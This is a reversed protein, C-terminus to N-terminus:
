HGAFHAKIRARANPDLCAYRAGILGGEGVRVIHLEADFVLNLFANRLIITGNLRQDQRLNTAPGFLLGTESWNRLPARQGMVQVKDEPGAVMRPSIRRDGGTQVSPFNVAVVEKFRQKLNQDILAAGVAKATEALLAAKEDPALGVGFFEDKLDRYHLWNSIAGELSRRAHADDFETHLQLLLLLKRAVGAERQLLPDLSEPAVMRGFRRSLENAIEADGSLVPLNAISVRLGRAMKMEASPDRKALSAPSALAARLRDRAVQELAPSQREGKAGVIARVVSVSEQTAPRDGAFALAMRVTALANDFGVGLAAAAPEMSLLEALTRDLLAQANADRAQALLRVCIEAKGPWERSASLWRALLAGAFVPDGAADLAHADPTSGEPIRKAAADVLKSAGDVIALLDRVRETVPTKLTRGQLIAVRQVFEQFNTGANLLKKQERPDFVLETVTIRAGECYTRAVQFLLARAADSLAEAPAICHM